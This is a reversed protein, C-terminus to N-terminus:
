FPDEAPDTAGAEEEPGNQAELIADILAAKTAETDVKKGKRQIYEQPTLDFAKAEEGLEKLDEIAELTERTWLDEDGAEESDGFPNDNSDGEGEEAEDAFASSEGDSEAADKNYVAGIKGRYNGEQDSDKKVRIVVDTGVVTGPKDPEIEIEQDIEGKANTKLGMALAFQAMKWKSSEGFSVYDWIRSLQTELPKGERGTGTIKYICELYPRSKDPKDNEGKTFGPNCEDLIATYLGPRAQEFDGAEAAKEVDDAGVKIRVKGM